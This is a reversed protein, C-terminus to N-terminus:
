GTCSSVCKEYDDSTASPNNKFTNWCDDKCANPNLNAKPSRFGYENVGAPMGNRGYLDILKNGESGVLSVARKALGTDLGAGAPYGAGSNRVVNQGLMNGLVMDWLGLTPSQYGTPTSTTKQTTTATKNSSKSGGGFLAGLLSAAGGIISALVVPAIGALIPGVKALEIVLPDM